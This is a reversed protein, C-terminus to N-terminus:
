LASEPTRNELWLRIRFCLLEKFAHLLVIPKAGSAKGATRPRHGHIPVERIRLGSRKARVLFEDSFAAGQSKIQDKLHQIVTRRMLKFACDTDRATYGFLITVLLNWGVSLFSRFFSDRRPARYGIVLDAEDIFNLLKTIEALDFQRDSDTLFILEKTASTLGSLVAAGYGKCVLRKILHIQPYKEELSRVIDITGDYSGDDVVIVEFDNTVRSLIQITKEVMPEINDAENRAPMTVTISKM